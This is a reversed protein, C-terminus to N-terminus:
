DTRGHAMQRSSQHTVDKRKLIQTLQVPKIIRSEPHSSLICKRGMNIPLTPLTLNTRLQNTTSEDYNIRRLQNTTPKMAPEYNTRPQNTTLAHLHDSGPPMPRLKNRSIRRTGAVRYRLGRSLQSIQLRM